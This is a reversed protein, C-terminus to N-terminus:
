RSRRSRVEVAALVIGGILVLAGILTWRSQGTMFSGGLRGTGQAIWVVGLAGAAPAVM